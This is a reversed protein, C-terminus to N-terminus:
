GDFTERNAPVVPVSFYWGIVPGLLGQRRTGLAANDTLGLRRAEECFEEIDKLTLHDMTKIDLVGSTTFSFKENM